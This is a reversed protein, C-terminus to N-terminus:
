GRPAFNNMQGIASHALVTAYEPSVAESFKKALMKPPISSDVILSFAPVPDARGFGSIKVVLCFSGKTTQTVEVFPISPQMVM